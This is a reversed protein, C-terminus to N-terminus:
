IKIKRDRQKKKKTEAKSLKDNRLWDNVFFRFKWIKREM